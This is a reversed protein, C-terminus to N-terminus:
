LGHIYIYIYIYVFYIYVFQNFLHVRHQFYLHFVLYKLTFNKQLEATM